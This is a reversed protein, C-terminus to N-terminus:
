IAQSYAQVAEELRGLKTFITGLYHYSWSFRPNIEIAQYYANISKEEKGKQQLQHALTFYNSPM